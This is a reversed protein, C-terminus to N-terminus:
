KINSVRENNRELRKVLIRPIKDSGGQSNKLVMGNMIQTDTGGADWISKLQRRLERYREQQQRDFRSYLCERSKEVEKLMKARAWIEKKADKWKLTVRLKLKGTVLRGTRQMKDVNRTFYLQLVDPMVKLVCELGKEVNIEPMGNIVLNCKWRETELTEEMDDRMYHVSSNVKSETEVKM